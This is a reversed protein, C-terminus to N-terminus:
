SLGTMPMVSKEAASRGDGTLLKQSLTGKGAFASM